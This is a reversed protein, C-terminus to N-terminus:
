RARVAAATALTPSRENGGRLRISVAAILHYSGQAPSEQWGVGEVLYRFELSGVNEALPQGPAADLKRRVVGDDLYYSVTNVSAVADVEGRFTIRDPLAELFRQDASAGSGALRIERAMYEVTARMGQQAEVMTQETLAYRILSGTFRAAAALVIWGVALGVLLEVLGYGRTASM